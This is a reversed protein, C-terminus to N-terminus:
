KWRTRRELGKWKRNKRGEEVIKSREKKRERNGKKERRKKTKITM